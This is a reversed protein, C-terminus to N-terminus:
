SQGGGGLGEGAGDGVAGGALGGDSVFDDEDIRGVAHVDVAAGLNVAPPVSDDSLRGSFGCGARCLLLKLLWRLSAVIAGAASKAGDQDSKGIAM